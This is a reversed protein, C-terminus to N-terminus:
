FGFTLDPNKTYGVGALIRELLRTSRTNKWANYYLHFWLENTPQDRDNRWTIIERGALAKAQPHFKVEITYNANRPSLATQALASTNLTFLIIVGISCFRLTNM